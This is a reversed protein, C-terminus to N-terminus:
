EFITKSYNKRFHFLYNINTLRSLPGNLTTVCIVFREYITVHHELNELIMISSSLSKKLLGRSFPWFITM